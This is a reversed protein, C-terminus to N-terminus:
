APRRADDASMMLMRSFSRSNASFSPNAGGTVGDVAGGDSM